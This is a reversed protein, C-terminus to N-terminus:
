LSFLYVVLFTVKMNIDKRHRPKTNNQPQRNHINHKMCTGKGIISSNDTDVWKVYSVSRM